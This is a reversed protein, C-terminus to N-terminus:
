RIHLEAVFPTQILYLRPSTVGLSTTLVAICGPGCTTARGPVGLMLSLSLADLRRFREREYAVLSSLGGTSRPTTVVYTRQTSADPLTVFYDPVGDSAPIEYQGVRSRTAPDIVLDGHFALGGSVRLEQRFASVVFPTSGVLSVGDNCVSLVSFDGGTDHSNIGLLVGPGGFAIADTISFSPPTTVPRMAGNDFIAVGRVYSAAVTARVVAVATPADPLAAIDFAYLSEGAAGANGVFFPPEAVGTRLDIARVTASGNLGVYLLRGDESISLPDPESGVFLAGVVMATAPDITIVRNGMAGASSPVSGYLLGRFPDWEIDNLPIDINRVRPEDCPGCDLLRDCGDSITGCVRTYGACTRPVCGPRVTPPVYLSFHPTPCPSVDHVANRDLISGDHGAFTSDKDASGDVGSESAEVVSADLNAGGDIM